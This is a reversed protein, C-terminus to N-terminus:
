RCEWFSIKDLPPETFVILTECARGKESPMISLKKMSYKIFPILDSAM